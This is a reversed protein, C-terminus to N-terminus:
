GNRRGKRTHWMLFLLCAGAHALHALGTEPDTTAGSRWAVLHRMLAAFYRNSGDPTRKWGEGSYKRAGYTLVEVIRGVQAYPLLDWMPKHRDHKRNDGRRMMGGKSGQPGPLGSASSGM